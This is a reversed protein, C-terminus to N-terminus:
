LLFYPHYIEHFIIVLRYEVNQFQNQESAVEIAAESIDLGVVKKFYPACASTSTGPGCGVDVVLDTSVPGQWCILSLDINPCCSLSM